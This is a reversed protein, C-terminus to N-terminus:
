LRDPKQHSCHDHPGSTEDTMMRRSPRTIQGESEQHKSDEEKWLPPRLLMSNWHEKGSETAVM